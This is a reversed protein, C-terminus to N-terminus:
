VRQSQGLQVRATGESRYGEGGGSLLRLHKLNDMMPAFYPMFSTRPLDMAGTVVAKVNSARNRSPQLLIGHVANQVLEILGDLATCPQPQTSPYVVLAVIVAQQHVGEGM